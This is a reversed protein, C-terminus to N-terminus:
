DERKVKVKQGTQHDLYVEKNGKKEILEYRPLNQKVQDYTIVEQEAPETTTTTTVTSTPSDVIAGAENVYVVRTGKDQHVTVAYIGTNERVVRTVLTADPIHTERVVTTQVVQPLTTFQIDDARAFAVLSLTLALLAAYRKM